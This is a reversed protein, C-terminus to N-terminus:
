STYCLRVNPLVNWHRPSIWMISLTPRLVTVAVRSRCRNTLFSTHSDARFQDVLQHNRWLDVYHAIYYINSASTHGTEANQLPLVCRRRERRWHKVYEVHSLRNDRRFDSKRINFNNCISLTINYTSEFSSCYTGPVINKDITNFLM